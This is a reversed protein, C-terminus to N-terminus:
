NWRPQLILVLLMFAGFLLGPVALICLLLMALARQRSRELTIAGGIVLALGLLIGLWLLGNFASVSGDALGIVFFFVIVAAILVDFGLLCLYAIRWGGGTSTPIPPTTPTPEPM